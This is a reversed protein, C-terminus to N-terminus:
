QNQICLMEKYIDENIYGMTIKMCRMVLSYLESGVNEIINNIKNCKNFIQKLTEIAETYDVNKIKEEDLKDLNMNQEIYNIKMEIENLVEKIFEKIEDDIEENNYENLFEDIVDNMHNLFSYIM